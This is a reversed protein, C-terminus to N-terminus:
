RPAMPIRSTYSTVSSLDKLLAHKRREKKKEKGRRKEGLRKAARAPKEQNPAPRRKSGLYIKVFEHELLCLSVM